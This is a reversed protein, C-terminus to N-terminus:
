PQLCAPISDGPGDADQTAGNEDYIKVSRVESFQKFNTTLLDAITYAAGGRDCTGKLYIYPCGILLGALTVYLSRAFLVAFGFYVWPYVTSSIDIEFILVIYSFPKHKAWVYILAMVLGDSLFYVNILAGFITLM